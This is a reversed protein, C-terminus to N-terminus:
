AVRNILKALDGSLSTELLYAKPNQRLILYEFQFPFPFRRIAPRSDKKTSHGGSFNDFLRRKFFIYPTLILM